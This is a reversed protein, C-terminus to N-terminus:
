GSPSNWLGILYLHIKYFKINRKLIFTGKFFYLVSGGGCGMLFGGGLDEFIRGPCPTRHYTVSM